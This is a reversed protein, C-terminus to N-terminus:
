DRSVFSLAGLCTQRDALPPRVLSPRADAQHLPGRKIKSAPLRYADEAARRAQVAQRIGTQGTEVVEMGTYRVVDAGQPAAGLGPDAPANEQGSGSKCALATAGLLAVALVLPASQQALSGAFAASGGVVVRKTKM